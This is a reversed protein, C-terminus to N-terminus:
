SNEGDYGQPYSKHWNWATDIITELDDYEPKWGLENMAKDSSGVLAAPDGARRDAYAFDIKVGGAKAVTNIVDLISHGNGNGLNYKRSDGGDLLHQMALYHAQALDMIHIYDRVCTGDKTPYDDGFVTLKRAKDLASRIVLPILHTEPNHDEGLEGEPDAGAANFYRLCVSKLGYAADFDDLINEMMLKTRGYPNIPNQPHSEDIPLSTPEGYTACTSSFIFKLVRHEIMSELLDLPASVNNRYYKLPDTVSEGVYCFAAFHMVAQIDHSGFIVSLLEKDALGGQYFPGWKVAQRHGYSLNDLVVPTHGKSHLYKCMHSGIYGAGGVILFEAM